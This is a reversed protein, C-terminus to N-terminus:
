GWCWVRSTSCRTARAARASPTVPAVFRHGRGAVTQICSGQERDRDLIRRLTAVQVTLNAEEVAMGSWVAKMIEDKSVLQGHRAVLLALLDLARSGLPIPEAVGAGDLRFLGGGRRDVRFGEFLFIEASGLGDM